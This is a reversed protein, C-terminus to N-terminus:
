GLIKQLFFAVVIPVIIYMLITQLLTIASQPSTHTTADGLTSIPPISDSSTAAREEPSSVPDEKTATGVLECMAKVLKKDVQKQKQQQHQLSAMQRNGEKHQPAIQLLRKTDALANQYKGLGAQAQGRLLLATQSFNTTPLSNTGENDEDNNHHNHFEAITMSLTTALVASRLYRPRRDSAMEQHKALDALQLLCRALNLLIREQWHEEEDQYLICLLIQTEPLVKEEGSECMSIEIDDNEELCDVDALKAHGDATKVIVTSGVQLISSLRLAQEYYTCAKSADGLRLLHDGRDKWKRIDDSSEEAVLLEDKELEFELLPMMASVETTTEVDEHCSPQILPTVLFSRKLRRKKSNNNNSPPIPVPALPEWLVCALNNNSNDDSADSPLTAITATGKFQPNDPRPLRVTAGVCFSSPPNNM